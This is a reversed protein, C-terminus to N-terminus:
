QAPAPDPQGRQGWTQGDWSYVRVQGSDLGNADNKPASSALVNGDASLSVRWGSQDYEAEGEIDQGRQTWSQGDWAYVRVRGYHNEM